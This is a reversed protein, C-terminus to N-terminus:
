RSPTQKLRPSKLKECIALLTQREVQVVGGVNAQPQCESLLNGPKERWQGPSGVPM